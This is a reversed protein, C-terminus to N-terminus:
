ILSLQHSPQRGNLLVFPAARKYVVGLKQLHKLNTIQKQGRAKLIRKVGVPGFGPVRLLEERTARNVEVPSHKLNDKAWALKPDIDLPLNGNKTFPMDEMSFGYDRLLFSSQYLRHERMPNEAPLNEFPTDRVPNFAMYYSRALRTNKYLYDSTAIIELDTEGAPGVVFQTTSSAWRGNWSNRPSVKQRIDEIWKLQQFLETDFEKMPALTPLRKENAGELNASVRSALEMSRQVQDYEAGPMLKLHMYGRYKYKNRLINATDILKDQTKIGGGIVGSSLFLGEVLNARFMYMYVRALEEPKFTARRMNRGARFPCYNCNRECASTLLTKLVKMRKGGPMVVESIPIAPQQKGDIIPQCAVENQANVELQMDSSLLSLREM